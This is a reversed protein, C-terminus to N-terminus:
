ACVCARWLWWLHGSHLRHTQSATQTQACACTRTQSLARARVPQRRRRRRRRRRPQDRHVAPTSEPAHTHACHDRVYTCVRMYMPVIVCRWVCAPLFSLFLLAGVSSCRLALTVRTAPRPHDYCMSPPAVPRPSPSSPSPSRRRQSGSRQQPQLHTHSHHRTHTIEDSHTVGDRRAGREVARAALRSPPAVLRRECRRFSPLSGAAVVHSHPTFTHTHSHATHTVRKCMADACRLDIKLARQFASRCRGSHTTPTTPTNTHTNKRPRQHTCMISQM